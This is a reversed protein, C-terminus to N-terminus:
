GDLIERLAADVAGTRRALREFDVAMFPGRALEAVELPLRDAAVQRVPIQRTPLRALALETEESVLYDLLLRAEVPHPGGRVLAATNPILLAGPPDVPLRLGLPMGRDQRVFADDTDTLGVQAEGRAVLEAAVSNGDVVRADHRRLDAYFRRAREEGLVDFLAAAETAATGVRPNCLAVKGEWAGRALELISRPPAEVSPKHYILV